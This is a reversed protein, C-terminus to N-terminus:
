IEEKFRAENEKFRDFLYKPKLRAFIEDSLQQLYNALVPDDQVDFDELRPNHNLNMSTKLVINWQDNRILSFKAHNRTVRVSEIGFLERIKAAFAPKRRQFTHDVLFRISLLKGSQLLQAADTLDAGAATWTSCFWHAPGTQDLIAAILEILSFQGKTIGFIACGPYIQGLVDTANELRSLKRIERATPANTCVAGPTKLTKCDFVPDFKKQVLLPNKRPSLKSM